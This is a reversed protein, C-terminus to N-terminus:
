WHDSPSTNTETQGPKKELMFDTMQTWYTNVFGYTFPLSLLIAAFSSIFDDTAICELNLLEFNEPGIIDTGKGEQVNDSVRGIHRDRIDPTPDSGGSSM